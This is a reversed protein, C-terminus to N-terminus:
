PSGTPQPEHPRPNLHLDIPQARTTQSPPFPTQSRDYKIQPAACPSPHLAQWSDMKFDHIIRFYNSWWGSWTRDKTAVDHITWRNATRKSSCLVRRGSNFSFNSISPKLLPRNFVQRFPGTPLLRDHFSVMRGSLLSVLSWVLLLVLLLM